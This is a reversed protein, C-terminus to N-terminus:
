KFPAKAFSLVRNPSFASSYSTLCTCYAASSRVEVLTTKPLGFYRAPSTQPNAYLVPKGINQPLLTRESFEPFM